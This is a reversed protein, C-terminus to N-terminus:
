LRFGSEWRRPKWLLITSYNRKGRLAAGLSQPEEQEELKLSDVDALVEAIDFVELKIAPQSPGLLPILSFGLVKSWKSAIAPM